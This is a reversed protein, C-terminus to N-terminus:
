EGTNEKQTKELLVYIGSIVLSVAGAVFFLLM